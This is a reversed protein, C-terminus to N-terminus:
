PTTSVEALEDEHEELWLYPVALVLCEGVPEHVLADALATSYREETVVFALFVATAIVGLLAAVVLFVGTPATIEWWILTFDATPPSSGTWDSVTAVPIATWALVYVYLATITAVAIVLSLLRQTIQKKFSPTVLAATAPAYESPHDPRLAKELYDLLPGRELVAVEAKDLVGRLDKLTEEVPRTANEIDEARALFVAEVLRLLQYRLMFLVPIVALGAVVGILWPELDDAAEWLDASFLPLFIVILAVPFLLPIGRAVTALRRGRLLWYLSTLVLIPLGHTLALAELGPGAVQAIGTGLWLAIILTVAIRPDRSTAAAFLMLGVLVAIPAWWSHFLDISFILTPVLCILFLLMGQSQTKEDDEGGDSPCVDGYGHKRLARALAERLSEPTLDPLEPVPASQTAENM